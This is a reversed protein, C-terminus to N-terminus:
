GVELLNSIFHLGVDKPLDKTETYTAKVVFEDHTTNKVLVKALAFYSSLLPHYTVPLKSVLFYIVAQKSNSM